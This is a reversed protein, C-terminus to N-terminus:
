SKFLSLQELNHFCIVVLIEKENRKDLSLAYLQM